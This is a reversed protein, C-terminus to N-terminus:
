ILNFGGDVTVVWWNFLLGEEVRLGQWLYATIAAWLRVDCLWRLYTTSKMSYQISDCGVSVCVCVEWITQFCSFFVNDTVVELQLVTFLHLGKHRCRGEWYVGEQTQSPLSQQRYPRNLLVLKPIRTTVLCTLGIIDTTHFCSYIQLNPWWADSFFSGSNHHIFKFLCFNSCILCKKDHTTWRRKFIKDLQQNLLGRARQNCCM